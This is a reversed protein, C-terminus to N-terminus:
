QLNKELCFTSCLEWHFFELIRLLYRALQKASTPNPPMFLTEKSQKWSWCFKEASSRPIFKALLNRSDLMLAQM